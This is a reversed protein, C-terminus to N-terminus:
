RDRDERIWQTTMDSKGERRRDMKKRHEDARRIFEFRPETAIRAELEEQSIGMEAFRGGRKRKQAPEQTDAEDNRAEATEATDEVPKIDVEVRQDMPLGPLTDLLITQGSIRGRIKM